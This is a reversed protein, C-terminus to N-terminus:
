SCSEAHEMRRRDHDDGRTSPDLHCIWVLEIRRDIHSLVIRISRHGRTPRVITLLSQLDNERQESGGSGTGTTAQKTTAQETTAQETTAQETAAQKTTPSDAGVWYSNPVFARVVGRM